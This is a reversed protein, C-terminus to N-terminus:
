PVVYETLECGDLHAEATADNVQGVIVLEVRLWTAGRYEGGVANPVSVSQTARAILADDLYMLADVDEWSFGTGSVANTDATNVDARAVEAASFGVPALCARFTATNSFHNSRVRLRCRCHYTEGIERVHLDFPTSKWLMNLVGDGSTTITGFYTDTGPTIDPDVEFYSGSPLIWKVRNQAFQDALHDLNGIARRHMGTDAADGDDILSEDFRTYHGDESTAM